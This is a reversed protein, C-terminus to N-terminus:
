LEALFGPFQQCLLSEFFQCVHGQAIGKGRDPFSRKGATRAQRTHDNGIGNERNPIIRKTTAATQRAYRYWMTNRADTGM